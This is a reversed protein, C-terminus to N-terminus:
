RGREPSPGDIHADIIATALLRRDDLQECLHTFRAHEIPIMGGNAEARFVEREGSHLAGYAQM